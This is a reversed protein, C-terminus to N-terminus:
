LSAVVSSSVLFDIQWATNWAFAFPWSWLPSAPLEWPPQLSYSFFQIHTYTHSLSISLIPFHSPLHLYGTLSPFLCLFFTPSKFIFGPTLLSMFTCVLHLFHSTASPLILLFILGPSLPSPFWTFFFLFFASTIILCRKLSCLGFPYSSGWTSAKLHEDCADPM